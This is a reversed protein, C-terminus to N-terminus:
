TFNSTYLRTSEASLAHTLLISTDETNLHTKISTTRYKKANLHKELGLALRKIDNFNSLHFM